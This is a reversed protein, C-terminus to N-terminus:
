VTKSNIEYNAGRITDFLFNARNANRAKIWVLGGEGSLDIGNTINLTAGTGGWLNISFLDEIYLKDGGAGAAAQMMGTLDAM